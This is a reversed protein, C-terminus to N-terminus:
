VEGLAPDYICIGYIHLLVRVSPDRMTMSVLERREDAHADGRYALNNSLIEEGKFGSLREAGFVADLREAVLAESAEIIEGIFDPDNPLYRETM